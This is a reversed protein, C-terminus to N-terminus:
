MVYRMESREEDYWSGLSGDNLSITTKSKGIFPMDSFLITRNFFYKNRVIWGPGEHVLAPISVFLLRIAVNQEM